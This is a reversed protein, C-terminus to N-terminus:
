YVKYRPYPENLFDDSDSSLDDYGAPRNKIKGCKKSKIEPQSAPKNWDMNKGALYNSENKCFLYSVQTFVFKSLKLISTYAICQMMLAGFGKYLGAYGEERVTANYCDVVGQFNTLIPTVSSGDDLDDIITRTGQM